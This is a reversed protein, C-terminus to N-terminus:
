EFFDKWDMGLATALKRASKVTLNRRGSKYCWLSNYSMGARRSIEALTLGSNKLIEKVKVIEGGKITEGSKSYGTNMKRALAM